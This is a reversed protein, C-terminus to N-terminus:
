CIDILKRLEKVLKNAFCSRYCPDVDDKFFIRLHFSCNFKFPTHSTSANKANNYVFKAMPLLSAWNNPDWNMFARFYVEIISNQRETQGNTQPYFAKSLRRKIKLFYYLLSWFKLMFLFDQDTIISNLLGHHWIVINIIVKALGPADITIKVPEYHVM